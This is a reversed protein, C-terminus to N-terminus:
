LDGLFDPIADLRHRLDDLRDELPAFDRTVLSLVGFIAEGTWLSPNRHVFHGSDHEAVAIELHADVLTVDVGDPFSPVAGPPPVLAALQGRLARLEAIEDALGQPSWDPLRGDHAHLGTFTATVPRQRYFTEFFRDLVAAAAAAEGVRTAADGM